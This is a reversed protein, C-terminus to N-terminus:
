HGYVFKLPGYVFKLPGYVFKFPGYVFKLPGYACKFFKKKYKYQFNLFQSFFLFNLINVNAPSFGADKGFCSAQTYGATCLLLISYLLM